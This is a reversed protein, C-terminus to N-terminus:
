PDAGAPGLHIATIGAARVAEIAQLLRSQPISEGAVILVKLKPDTGFSRSLLETLEMGSKPVSDKGVDYRDADAKVRIRIWTALRDPPSIAVAEGGGDLVLPTGERVALFGFDRGLMTLSGTMVNKGETWLIGQYNQSSRPFEITFRIKQRVDQDVKGTVPYVSGSADSAYTGSVAGSSDVALVLLGSWQGNAILRFRGSFDGPRPVTGESPRGPSPRALDPPRSVTALRAPGAPRIAGDKEGRATFVIDGGLGDPVIQGTDLDLQFGPFLNLDHGHALRSAPKSGDYVEFREVALVPILTGAASKRFGPSVLMKARNGQDTRVLILAARRDHLVAPLAELERFDLAAQTRTAADDLLSGVVEGSLRDFEDGRSPCPPILLLIALGFILRRGIM